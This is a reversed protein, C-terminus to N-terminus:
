DSKHFLQVTSDMKGEGEMGKLFSLLKVGRGTLSYQGKDNKKIVGSSLLKRTHFSLKPSDKEKIHNLIDTFSAVKASSLYHIVARRIPNALSESMIQAYSEGLLNELAALENAKLSDPDITIIILSEASSVENLLDDVFNRVSKLSNHKTLLEVGHILIVSRENNKMFSSIIRKLRGLDKPKICDKRKGKTTLWYMLSDSAWDRKELNKPNDRTIVLGKRRKAEQGFVEFADRESRKMEIDKLGTRFRDEEMINEIIANLEEAKFPKRLYDSAGLKMAEVATEVTAYATIIVVYLDPKMSKLSRLVDIGDMGPMKLDVLAIRFNESEAAGIAKKGSDFAATKYGYEKLLETLGRRAIVDDDVIMIRTEGADTSTM